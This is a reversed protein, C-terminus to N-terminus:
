FRRCVFGLEIESGVRVLRGGLFSRHAAVQDASHLTTTSSSLSLHQMGIESSREGVSV